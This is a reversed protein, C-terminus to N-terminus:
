QRYCLRRLALYLTSNESRHLLYLGSVHVPYVYARATMDTYWGMDGRWQQMHCHFPASRVRTRVLRHTPVMLFVAGAANQLLLAGAIARAGMYKASRASLASSASTSSTSASTSSPVYSASTVGNNLVWGRHHELASTLSADVDNALANANPSIFLGQWDTCYLRTIMKGHADLRTRPVFTLNLRPLHIHHIDVEKREPSGTNGWVLVHSVSDLRVLLNALAHRLLANHLLM